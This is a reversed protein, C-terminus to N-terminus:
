QAEANAKLMAVGEGGVFISQGKSDMSMCHATLPLSIRCKGQALDWLAFGGGVGAAALVLGWHGLRGVALSRIGAFGTVLSSSDISGENVTWVTATGCSYGAATAVLVKKGSGFASVSSIRRWGSSELMMITANATPEWVEIDGSEYGLVVCKRNGAMTIPCASQVGRRLVPARNTTAPFGDSHSTVNGRGDVITVSQSTAETVVVARIGHRSIRRTELRKLSGSEWFTM